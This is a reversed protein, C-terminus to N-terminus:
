TITLRDRICLQLTKHLCTQLLTIRAQDQSCDRNRHKSEGLPQEIRDEPPSATLVIEIANESELSNAKSFNSGEENKSFYYNVVLKMRKDFTRVLSPTQNSLTISKSLTREKQTKLIYFFILFIVLSKTKLLKTKLVSFRHKKSM